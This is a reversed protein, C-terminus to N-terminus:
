EPAIGSEGCESPHFAVLQIGDMNVPMRRNNGKTIFKFGSETNTTWIMVANGGMLGSVINEWIMTRVKASVKGVYVGARAEVLWVSLRGRLAAPANETVIVTM